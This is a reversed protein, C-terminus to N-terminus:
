VHALKKESSTNKFQHDNKLKEKFVRHRKITIEKIAERATDIQSRKKSERIAGEKFIDELHMVGDKLELDTQIPSPSALDVFLRNPHKSSWSEFFTNDFLIKETGVTNAIFPYNKLTEKDEWPIIKLEHMSALEQVKQTNRACIIVDTKKKFQNILDESLHGSGIIVVPENQNLTMISRRTISAYTKQCIGLLYKRRIEKADKFLKELVQILKPSRADDNLYNQYATKFQGVIENEGILKSQLGCIIELLYFYADQGSIANKSHKKESYKLTLSRQCTQITFTGPELSKPFKVGASFNELELFEIM